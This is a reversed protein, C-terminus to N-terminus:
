IKNNYIKKNNKWYKTKIVQAITIQFYTKVKNKKIIKKKLIIIKKPNKIKKPNYNEIPM